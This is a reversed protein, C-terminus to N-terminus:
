QEKLTLFLNKLLKEELMQIAGQELVKGEQPSLFEDRVLRTSFPITREEREELCPERHLLNCPTM